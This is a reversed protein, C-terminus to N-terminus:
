RKHEKTKKNIEKRISIDTIGKVRQVMRGKVKDSYIFGTTENNLNVLYLKKSKIEVKWTTNVFPILGFSSYPSLCM